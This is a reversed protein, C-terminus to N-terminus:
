RWRLLETVPSPAEDAAVVARLYATDDATGPAPFEIKTQRHWVYASPGELVLCAPPRGYFRSLGIDVNVM